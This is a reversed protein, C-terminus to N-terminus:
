TRFMLNSKNIYNCLCIKILCILVVNLDHLHYLRLLHKRCRSSTWYFQFCLCPKLDYHCCNKEGFDHAGSLSSLTDPGHLAPSSVSLLNSIVLPL